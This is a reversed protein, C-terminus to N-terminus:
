RPIQRELEDIVDRLTEFPFYSVGRRELEPALTDKAFGMEAGLVGCLDSVRGNGIHVTPVGPNAERYAGIIGRKCVGTGCGCEPNPRGPAIRWLGDEYHMHNAEYEFSVDLLEKLRDINHDFGDSLIRFPAGREECWRLLDRAGPDLEISALFEELAAEPVPMGDLIQMNYEWATLEGSRVREMAAPRLDAVYKVALTAGVDRTIFTGDFDCFVAVPPKASM